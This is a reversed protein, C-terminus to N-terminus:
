KGTGSEGVVVVPLSSRAIRPLAAVAASMSPSVTALGPMDHPPPEGAEDQSPAQQFQFLTRGAQILDGDQLRAEACPRGNVRTGNTSLADAIWWEGDRRFLRAHAASLWADPIELRVERSDGASFAQRKAGRGLLVTDVEALPHLSAGELPRYCELAVVIRPATGAVSLASRSAGLIPTRGQLGTTALSLSM